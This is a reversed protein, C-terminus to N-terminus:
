TCNSSACQPTRRKLRLHPRLARQHLAASGLLIAHDHTGPVTHVLSKTCVMDSCSVCALRRRRSCLGVSFRSNISRLRCGPAETDPMASSLPMLALRNNLHRRWCKRDLASAVAVDFDVGIRNGRAIADGGGCVVAAANGRRYRHWRRAGVGADDLDLDAADTNTQAATDVLRVQAGHQRGQAAECSRSGDFVRTQITAPWVSM